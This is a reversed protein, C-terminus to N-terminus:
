DDQSAEVREAMELWDAEASALQARYDALEDSVRRFRSPDDLFLNPDALVTERESIQKTMEEIRPLLGEFRHQETFSLGADRNPPSSRKSTTKRVSRAKRTKSPGLNEHSASLDRPWGGVNVRIQGSGDLVLSRTAVRDVFDRDHSSFLVTGSYTAILEQLLDLTEVDLNNTPEDLVLLNSSRALIRALHLRAREGGSLSTVPARVQHINFLFEKLYGAVHRLRGRVLLHDSRQRGPFESDDTLVDQVRLDPRATTDHQDFWAVELRSGMAVTGSDPLMRGSLLGLLTTKGVGNAGLVAVRDNRMIRLNLGEVIKQDGFSLSLEDAEIVLRGSQSAEAWDTKPGKKKPDTSKQEARLDNLERLRRLNRRRRASIGVSLWKEERKLLRQKEQEERLERELITDRWDEFHGFGKNLRHLRGNHLWFTSQTVSRLFARDHSVVLVAAETTALYNELWVIGGIDLDNTPEDLLMLDPELAILRAIGARRREGGSATKMLTTPDVSLGDMATRARYWEDEPLGFTAFDHLTEFQRLDPDQELVAIRTGAAQFRTGADVELNGAMLRILTSKGSGNRGVLCVRDRRRIMADLESLLPDGGFTLMIQDLVLLPPQIM